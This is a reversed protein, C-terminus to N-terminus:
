DTHAMAQLNMCWIPTQMVIFGCSFECFFVLTCTPWGVCTECCNYVRSSGRVPRWAYRIM